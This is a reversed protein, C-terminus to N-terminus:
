CPLLALVARWYASLGARLVRSRGATGLLPSELTAVLADAFARPSIVATAQVRRREDRAESLWRLVDAWSRLKAQAWGGAAAVVLLPVECAVLAPLTLWLLPRPYTRLVTVWRNRELNRWKRAGKEFVYDHAVRAAPLVGFGRGALRLRHSLDVDDFYLFFHGAFGGLERWVELRVALCAGSLFGTTYPEAPLTAVRDGLRGVWSFGLFHSVGGATNVTEGDRLTVVGMWADWGDPPHRMADLCGPAPIADPNLLLLADGGAAAAGLNAAAAFGLNGPADILRTVEPHDRVGATGGAAAANDVVIVEDGDARQRGVEALLEALDEGFCVIVISLRL